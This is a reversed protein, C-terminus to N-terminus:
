RAPPSRRQWYNAFQIRQAWSYDRELIYRWHDAEWQREVRQRQDYVEYAGRFRMRQIAPIQAGVWTAGRKVGSAALMGAGTAVAKRTTSLGALGARGALMVPALGATAARSWADGGMGTGASAAAIGGGAVGAQVPSGTRAGFRVGRLASGIARGGSMAGRLLRRQIFLFLVSSVSAMLLSAFFFQYTGRLLLETTILMLALGVLAMVIMFVSALLLGLWHWLIRRSGGGLLAVPLVVLLAVVLVALMLQGVVIPVFVGFLVFLLLLAVAILLTSGVVLRDVNPWILYAALEEGEPCGAYGDIGGKGDIGGPRMMDYMYNEPNSDVRQLPFMPNLRPRWETVTEVTEPTARLIDNYVQWCAHRGGQEYDGDCSHREDTAASGAQAGATASDRVALALPCDIRQGYTMRQHPQRVYLDVLWQEMVWRLYRPSTQAPRAESLNDGPAACGDLYAENGHPDLLPCLPPQHGEPPLVATVAVEVGLDKARGYLGDDSLVVGPNALVAGLVVALGFSLAIEGAGRGVQGRLAALGFWFVCLMLALPILGWGGGTLTGVYRTQYVDILEQVPTLLLDSLWFDLALDLMTVALGVAYRAASLQINALWVTFRTELNTPLGFRNAQPVQITYASIPIGFRDHVENGGGDGGTALSPPSAAMVAAPAVPAPGASAAAPAAAPGILLAAALLVLVPRVWRARGATPRQRSRVWWECRM